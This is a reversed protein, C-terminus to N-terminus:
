LNTMAESIIALPNYGGYYTTMLAL